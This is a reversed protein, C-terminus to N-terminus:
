EEGVDKWDKVAMLFGGIRIALVKKGFAKPSENMWAGNDFYGDIGKDPCKLTTIAHQAGRGEVVVMRSSCGPWGAMMDYACVAYDDCDGFGLTLTEDCPRWDEKKEDYDRWYRIPSLAWAKVRVMRPKKPIIQCKSNSNKPCGSGKKRPFHKGDCMQGGMTTLSWHPCMKKKSM